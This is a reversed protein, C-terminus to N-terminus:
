KKVRYSIGLQELFFKYKDLNTTIGLQDYVSLALHTYVKREAEEKSVEGQEFSVQVKQMYQRVQGQFKELKAALEKEFQIKLRAKHASEEINVKKPKRIM